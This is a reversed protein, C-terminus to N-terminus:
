WSLTASGSSAQLLTRAEQARIRGDSNLDAIIFQLAGLEAMGSSAQLVQRAEQARIRGDGNLDGVLGVSIITDEDMNEVTFAYADGTATAALRTYTQGGDYSVVVYCASSNSVTFTNEGKVWGGEPATITANPATSNVSFDPITGGLFHINANLLSDNYYSVTIDSWQTESGAYYVDTLSDCGLFARDGIKTVSEPITVSSLSSCNRFALDGISTVGSQIIVEKINDNYWPSASTISYAAMDGNGSITLKGQPEITWILNEGCLGARVWIENGDVDEVSIHLTKKLIENGISIEISEFYELSGLYYTKELASCGNFAFDGISTVGEPITVSTLASCLSFAEWGISTVGEPITINMLSTCGTFTGDEISTVGEPITISTLTSCGSFAYSGISTVGEPISVETLARCGGFTSGNIITVGEPINIRMLSNCGAFAATGIDTVGEPINVSTLASCGYFAHSGISTVDEPITVSTLASCGYFAYNEISTVGEPIIISTLASCGFFAGIDIRKVAAPICISELASCSQFAYNGISTVGSDIDTKKIEAAYKFWSNDTLDGYGSIILTGDVTLIWLLNEGCRGTPIWVDNGSNDKYLVHLSTKLADNETNGININFFEETIGHYYTKSLSYCRGFAYNGISTMSSPITVSELSNCNFFVWDGISMVGESITVSTLSSCEYFAGEGIDTVGEPIAVSTLASCGHFAREGINTVGEPIAVSMLASCGYFVREGISTVDETITVSTLASCEYFARSGISTVGSEIIVEQIEGKNKFWPPDNSYSYDTMDGDGSITLTGESDLKWTLNDGCTGSAIVEIIGKYAYVINANIIRSNWGGIVITAWEARSGSYYVDTLSDCFCFAEEGISTVSSPITVSKISICEFFANSGISTVGDKIVVEKLKDSYYWPSDYSYDTMNGKGSITLTGVSDLTWTLNEGCTGSEVITTAQVSFQPVVALMIALALVFLGAGYLIRKM